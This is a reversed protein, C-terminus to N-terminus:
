QGRTEVDGVSCIFSYGISLSQVNQFGSLDLLDFFAGHNIRVHLDVRLGDRVIKALSLVATLTLPCNFPDSAPQKGLM